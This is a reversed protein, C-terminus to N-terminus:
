DLEDPGNHCLAARSHGDNQIVKNSLVFSDKKGKPLCLLILDKLVLTFARLICHPSQTM